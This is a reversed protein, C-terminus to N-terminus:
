PAEAPRNSAGMAKQRAQKAFDRAKEAFENSPGYEARGAAMRAEHYYAEASTFEYTATKQAGAARAGEIEVDADHLVKASRVPGCAALSAIILSAFLARM